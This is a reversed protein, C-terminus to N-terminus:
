HELLDKTSEQFMTRRLVKEIRMKAGIRVNDKDAESNLLVYCKGLFSGRRIKYSHGNITVDYLATDSLFKM